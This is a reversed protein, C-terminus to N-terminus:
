RLQQLAREEAPIRIGLLLVINLLSAIIATSWANFILPVCALEICVAVYNPHAILRYPGQQIRQKGQVILIRTNWFHGLSVMCWYRLGQAALFLSLWIYWFDSLQSSFASEYLWGIFWSIHLAFFLPYHEPSYERGGMAMVYRRNRASIFLEVLRQIVIVVALYCASNEVM